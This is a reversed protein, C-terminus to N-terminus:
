LIQQKVTCRGHEVQALRPGLQGAETVPVPTEWKPQAPIAKKFILIVSISAPFDSVEGGGAPTHWKSLIKIEPQLRVSISHSLLQWVM